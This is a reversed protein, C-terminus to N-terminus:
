QPAETAYGFRTMDEAYLTEIRARTAPTIEPAPTQTTDARVKERPLVRDGETDGSLLDLWGILAAEGDELRFIRSRSPVFSHMPQIHGDYLQPRIARLRELDKVWADFSCEPDITREREKQFLFVSRLRDVPHRVMAFSQAFFGEPFLRALAAAPVHQPSTATWREEAPQSLYKRDQFALRGFRHSLYAEISTGACKPVHAFYVLMDSIRVIPM